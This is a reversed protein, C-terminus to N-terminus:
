RSVGRQDDAFMIGLKVSIAVMTGSAVQRKMESQEFIAHEGAAEAMAIVNLARANARGSKAEDPDEGKARGPYRRSPRARWPFGHLGHFRAIWGRLASTKSANKRAHRFSHRSRRAHWSYNNASCDLTDAKAWKNIPQRSLKSEIAPDQIGGRAHKDLHLAFPYRDAM